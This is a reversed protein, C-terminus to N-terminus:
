KLLNGWSHCRCFSGSSKFHSEFKLQCLQASWIECQIFVSHTIAHTNYRTHCPIIGSGPSNDCGATGESVGHSPLSSPLARCRHARPFLACPPSGSPFPLNYINPKLGRHCSPNEDLHERSPVQTLKSCVRLPTRCGHPSM